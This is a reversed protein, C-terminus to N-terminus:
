PIQSARHQLAKRALAFSRQWISWSSGALPSRGTYIESTSSAQILSSPSTGPWEPFAGETKTAILSWIKAGDVSEGVEFARCYPPHEREMRLVFEELDQNSWYSWRELTTANQAQAVAEAEAEKGIPAEPVAENLIPPSLAIEAQDAACLSWALLFSALFVGRRARLFRENM